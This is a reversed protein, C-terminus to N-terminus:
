SIWILQDLATNGKACYAEVTELGRELAAHIRERGLGHQRLVEASVPAARRVSWGCDDSGIGSVTTVWVPGNRMIGLGEIESQDRSPATWLMLARRPPADTLRRPKRCLRDWLSRTDIQKPPDFGAVFARLSKIVPDEGPRALHAAADNTETIRAGHREVVGRAREVLDAGFASELGRANSRGEGEGAEVGADLPQAHVKQPLVGGLM